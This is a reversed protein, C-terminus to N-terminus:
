ARGGRARVAANLDAIRVPKAPKRLLGKLARVDDTATSM